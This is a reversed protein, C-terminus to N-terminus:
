LSFSINMIYNLGMVLRNNDGPAFRGIPQRQPQVWNLRNRNSTNSKAQLYVYVLSRKEMSLGNGFINRNLKILHTANISM